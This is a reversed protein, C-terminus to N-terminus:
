PLLATVAAPSGSGGKLALVGIVLTAGVAPLRDLNALNELVIRPRELVLRNISFAGDLGADVGPTDTGLGAAARTELLYRAAEPSYGPYRPRGQDDLNLYAEGDHWFRSWGTRLLVCSGAPVAGHRAEWDEVDALSLRHDADAEAQRCIDIVVAPVVWTEPVMRDIAEGEPHFSLPANVHTGGHEGVAFRRLFYGDREWEAWVSFEMPPDGPWHPMRPEIPHSLSVVRSFRILREPGTM